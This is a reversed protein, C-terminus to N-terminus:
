MGNAAREEKLKYGLYSFQLVSNSAPVAITFNGDIDTIAVVKTGKVTVTVGILPEGNEDLVQGTIKNDAPMSQLAPRPSVLTEGALATVFPAALLVM